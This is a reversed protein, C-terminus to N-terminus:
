SIVLLWQSCPRSSQSASSSDQHGDRDFLRVLPHLQLSTFQGPPFAVSGIELTSAEERPIEVQVRKFSQQSNTWQSGLAHLDHWHQLFISRWFDTLANARDPRRPDPLALMSGCPVRDRLRHTMATSGAKMVYCKELKLAIKNCITRGWTWIAIKFNLLQSLWAKTTHIGIAATTTWKFRFDYFLTLWRM